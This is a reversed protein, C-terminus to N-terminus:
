TISYSGASAHFCYGGPAPVAQTAMDPQLSLAKEVNDIVAKGGPHIAFHKISTTFDPTYQKVNCKLVQM